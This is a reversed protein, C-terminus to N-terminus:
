VNGESVAAVRAAAQDPTDFESLNLGVAVAVAAELRDLRQGLRGAWASTAVVEGALRYAAELGAVRPELGVDVRTELRSVREELDVFQQGLRRDSVSLRDALEAAKGRIEEDAVAQEKVGDELVGLRAELEAVARQKSQGIM